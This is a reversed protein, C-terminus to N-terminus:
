TAASIGLFACVVIFVALLYPWVFRLYKDYGVKSLALGGMIVASTPTVLNVLGSASQFATVVLAKSVGALDALPALIPMVLAAHGSSSPVLFAIPINVIFALIAFAGSSSGSVGKEMWHLITDTMYANKMVVTIGRALVIILGAGLFDGAGAVITSVTGEEGLRAILGIVVAMVLFLTAAEPFYFDGFTPLPFNKGFGEHWLDNWPIFGYIMTLFTLGFLALVVKQRGTLNPVDGVLKQADAADSDSVGVISKAADRNVRRAYWIVYGIGLAVVVIWLAIRLGMGEGISVGAADSAVGTSFPNVTSGIVGAGAGLFIISAAVIRDYHLALALPVLLVFFGLTEEWMGYTTGGIAFITMLIAILVYGSSRFRLALRGIGTQIAETKMTVTIFAGVALVFLFIAASGYLFGGEWPGVTGNPGEVGYLGNPPADWLQKFRYTFSTDVCNVGPEPTVKAGPAQQADAPATGTEGPSPVTLASAGEAAVASCSPLEHYTGPIPSGASDLKYKGAPVFFAAVWVLLLVLFLVTFATPFRFRQKPSEPTGSPESMRRITREGNRHPM